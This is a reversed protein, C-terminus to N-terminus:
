ERCPVKQARRWAESREKDALPRCSPCFIPRAASALFEEGCRKCNETHYVELHHAPCHTAGDTIPAQCGDHACRRGQSRRKADVRCKRSCYDSAGCDKKPTYRKHCGACEQQETAAAHLRERLEQPTVSLRRATKAFSFPGDDPNWIGSRYAELICIADTLHESVTGNSLRLSTAVVQLPEGHLVCRDYVEWKKPHLERLAVQGQQAVSLEWYWAGKGKEGAMGRRSKIVNLDLAARRLTNESIQAREAEDIVDKACRPGGALTHLLFRKAHTHVGGDGRGKLYARVSKIRAGAEAALATGQLPVGQALLREAAAAVRGHWEKHQEYLIQRAEEVDDPTIDGPLPPRLGMRVLRKRVCGESVGLLNAIHNLPLAEIVALRRLEEEDM